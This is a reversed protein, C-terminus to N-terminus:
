LLFNRIKSPSPVKLVFSNTDKILGLKTSSTVFKLHHKIRLFLIGVKTSFALSLLSTRETMTEAM